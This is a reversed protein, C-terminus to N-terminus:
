FQFGLTARFTNYGFKTEAGRLNTTGGGLVFPNTAPATGQAVNVYYKSDTYRTKLYELGFSVKDTVMVEAGGGAQWGWVMKGDNVETFANATNTTSFSHNIKAYTGGGTAYFLAGGGPTFGVRARASIGYDLKRAVQYAAPTTSFASTFDTADSKNVEILGGVVFNSMRSDVGIRVGYEGRSRDNECASNATSQYAGNCFGPSFANAGTSTRVTDGFTGDGNRDFTITDGVISRPMALGGFAGVYVGNFHADRDYGGASPGDQALAASSLGAGAALLAAASILSRRFM